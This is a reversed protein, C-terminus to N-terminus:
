NSSFQSLAGSQSNLKQIATEMATFKKWLRTEEDTLRTQLTKITKNTKEIKTSIDNETDSRTSAMGAVETLSGRTGKQGSTRIADDIVSNLSNGIGNASTFLERVETGRTNLATKLKDQDIQLKGNEYWGASTIGISSLSIGNVTMSTLINHMKSSIGKLISDSRLIGSKAKDEWTKIQSETMEAKQDDSLPQYDAYVKENTLTNVADIMTNYDDVFKTIPDILSNGNNTKTLTIATDSKEQLTINVGDIEFNNSSRIIDQGNVKLIANKGAEMDGAITKGDEKLIGLASMLTGDTESININEGTGGNKAVISFQDTVSSYALTVGADSSNIRNIVSSLTDTKTFKFEVSNITLAYNDGISLPKKSSVKELSSGINILNSQGSTFGLAAFAQDNAEGVSYVSVKSGPASLTLKNDTFGVSVLSTTGNKGFAKDAANQLAAQLGGSGTMDDIFTQDFTIAKATGNLNIYISNDKLAAILDAQNATIASGTLDASAGATGTLLQNTALQDISNITITGPNASATSSVKVATSSSSVEVPNFFATSRLNTTSLVDLYKGQFSKLSTSVSRYATRKWELKQISQQQKLIKDRSASTMNEVISDIDMGSVLGGIGTKATLKSKTTTNSSTSSSVSNM